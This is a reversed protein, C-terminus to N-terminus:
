SQSGATKSVEEIKKLAEDVAKLQLDYASEKQTKQSKVLALRLQSREIERALQQEKAAQERFSEQKYEELNKKAEEVENEKKTIAEGLESKASIINLKRETLREVISFRSMSGEGMTEGEVHTYTTNTCEKIYKESLSRIPISGM